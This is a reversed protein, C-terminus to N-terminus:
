YVFLSSVWLALSICGGTIAALFFRGSLNRRHTQTQSNQLEGPKFGCAGCLCSTLCLSGSITLALSSASLLNVRVNSDFNESSPEVAGEGEETQAAHVTEKRQSSGQSETDKEHDRQVNEFAGGGRPHLLTDNTEKRCLGSSTALMFIIPFFVFVSRM